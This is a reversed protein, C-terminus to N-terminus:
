RIQKNKSPDDLDADRQKGTTETPEDKTVVKEVLHRTIMRSWDWVLRLPRFRAVLACLWVFGLLSLSLLFIQAPAEVFAKWTVDTPLLEKSTFNPTRRAAVFCLGQVMLIQPAHYIVVSANALEEFTRRTRGPAHDVFSRSIHPRGIDANYFKPEAASKLHTFDSRKSNTGSLEWELQRSNEIYITQFTKNSADQFWFNILLLTAALSLVAFSAPEQIEGRLGLVGVVFGGALIMSWNRIRFLHTDYESIAKRSIEYERWLDERNSDPAKNKCELAVQLSGVTGVRRLSVLCMVKILFLGRM